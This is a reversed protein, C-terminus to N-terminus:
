PMQHSGYYAIISDRILTAGAKQFVKDAPTSEVKGPLGNPDGM